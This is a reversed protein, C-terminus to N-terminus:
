NGTKNPALEWGDDREIAGLLQPLGRDLADHRAHDLGGALRRLTAEGNRPFGNDSVFFVVPPNTMWDVFHEAVRQTLDPDAHPFSADAVFIVQGPKM